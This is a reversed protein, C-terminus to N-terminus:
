LKKKVSDLVTMREVHCDDFAYNPTGGYASEGGPHHRGVANLTSNRDSIMGAGLQDKKLISSETPYFFRPENGLDPENYVDVGASGGVFPTIPRHSKSTFGDAISQWNDHQLFETALITGSAGRASGDVGDTTVLRNRRPTSTNFKNRPFIAANGTYAMRAAQRDDPVTAGPGQGLDNVQWSEWNATDSGPNTAPAGGNLVAPCTFAAEAIGGGGTTGDFLSWSWHIYGNSPVPNTQLQQQTRWEGGDQSSAYVYAPPFYQNAAVYTNVAQAVSRLNAGCKM